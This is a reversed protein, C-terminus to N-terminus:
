SLPVHETGPLILTVGNEKAATQRQLERMEYHYRGQTVLDSGPPTILGVPLADDGFTKRWERPIRPTTIPELYM